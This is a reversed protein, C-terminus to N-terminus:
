NEEKSSVLPIEGRDQAEFFVDLQYMLTEGNDGDGGSTWGFYDNYLQFDISELHKMIQVSKPHHQIGNEWRDGIKKEHDKISCICHGICKTKCAM